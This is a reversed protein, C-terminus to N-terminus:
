RLGRVSTPTSSRKTSKRKTSPKKTKPKSEMFTRTIKYVDLYSRPVGGYFGYVEGYDGDRVSVFFGDFEDVAPDHGFYDQVADVDQSDQVLTLGPRSELNFISGEEKISIVTKM